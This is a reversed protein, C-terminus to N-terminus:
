RVSQIIVMTPHYDNWFTHARATTLNRTHFSEVLNKESM